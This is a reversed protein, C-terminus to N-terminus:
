CLVDYGSHGRKALSGCSRASKFLYLVLGQRATDALASCEFPRKRSPQIAEGSILRAIASIFVIIIM